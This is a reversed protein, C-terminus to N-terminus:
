RNHRGCFGNGRGAGQHGETHNHCSGDVGTFNNKSTGSNQYAGCNDCIGDNDADVYRCVNEARDCIGNDDADVFNRGTGKGAAFVGIAGVSLVMAATLIGVLTKKM